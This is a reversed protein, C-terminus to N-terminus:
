KAVLSEAPQHVVSRPVPGASRRLVLPADLIRQEFPSGTGQLRDLLMDVAVAGLERSPMHFTTLFPEDTRWSCNDFGIVSVDYGPALGAEQLAECLGRAHLDRAAVFATPLGPHSLASKAARYSELAGSRPVHIVFAEDVKLGAALMAQRYGELAAGYWYVSPVTGIYGIRRHGFGVLIEVARRTIATHDLKTASLALDHELNAVVVPKGREQFSLAAEQAAPFSCEIFLLGDYDQVAQPLDTARVLRVHGEERTFADAETVYFPLSEFNHFGAQRLRETVAAYMAPGEPMTMDESRPHVVGVRPPATWQMAPRVQTGRGHSRVVLGERALIALANRIYARGVGFERTLNRESPLFGGPAYDGRIIRARLERAVRVAPEVENGRQSASGIEAL